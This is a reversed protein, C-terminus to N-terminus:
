VVDTDSGSVCCAYGHVVAGTELHSGKRRKAVCAVTAFVWLCRRQRWHHGEAVTVAQGGGTMAGVADAQVWATISDGGGTKGGAL